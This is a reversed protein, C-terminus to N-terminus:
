LFSIGSIHSGSLRGNRHNKEYNYIKIYKIHNIYCYFKYWFTFDPHIEM